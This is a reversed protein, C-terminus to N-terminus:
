LVWSALSIAPTDPALSRPQSSRHLLMCSSPGGSVGSFLNSSSHARAAAANLPAPERAPLDSPCAEELWPVHAFLQHPPDELRTGQWGPMWSTPLSGFYSAWGASRGLGESASPTCLSCPGAPPSEARTTPIPESPTLGPLAQQSVQLLFSGSRAALQGQLRERKAAGRSGLTAGSLSSLSPDSADAQSVLHSVLTGLARSQQLMAKAFSRSQRACSARWDRRECMALLHSVLCTPKKSQLLLPRHVGGPAPSARVLRLPFLCVFAWSASCIM